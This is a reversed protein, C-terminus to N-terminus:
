FRSLGLFVCSGSMCCYFLGKEAIARSLNWFINSVPFVASLASEEQLYLPLIVIVGPYVVLVHNSSDFVNIM